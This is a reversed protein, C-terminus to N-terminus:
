SMMTMGTWPLITWRGNSRQLVVWRWNGCLGGCYMGIETMAMTHAHNFYVATFSHLGAAGKFEEPTPPAQMINNSPPLYGSVHGAYRKQGQEDLLRLPLKLRFRSADLQYREHCSKDFDALMEALNTQDKEPARIAEHPNMMGSTACSRDLPEAKTAAELLWFTRPVDGWEIQRGPLLDSYIAYSDAARGQPMTQPTAYQAVKTQQADYAAATTTLACIVAYVKLM